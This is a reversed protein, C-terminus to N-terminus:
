KDAPIHQPVVTHITTAPMKLLQTFATKLSSQSGTTWATVNAAGSRHTLLDAKVLRRKLQQAVALGTDIIHVQRGPESTQAIVDNILPIVFPYHTCGLVIADAGANLLATVYKQVLSYTAASRLDGKEIQSALGICAQQEVKIGTTQTLHDRLDQFKKSHLTGQTALVGIVGSQTLAAAPKLGPEIGVIILDPYRLRLIQIAAATATNCAVVLAKIQQQLLFDTIALSRDIIVAEPKEGYPAFGSDAFYILSEQPLTQRIHQLVSLGGVGSDFVGIPADPAFPM